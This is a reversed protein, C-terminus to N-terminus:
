DDLHNHFQDLNEHSANHRAGLFMEKMESIYKEVIYLCEPFYM